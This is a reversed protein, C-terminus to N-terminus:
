NLFFQALRVMDPHDYSVKIVSNLPVAPTDVLNLATIDGNKLRILQYKEM